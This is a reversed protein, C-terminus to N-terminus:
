YLGVILDVLMIHPKCLRYSSVIEVGVKKIYTREEREYNESIFKPMNMISNGCYKDFYFFNKRETEIIQLTLDRDWWEQLGNM